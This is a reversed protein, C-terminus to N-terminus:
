IEMRTLPILDMESDPSAAAAPETVALVTLFAHALITWRRWSKWRRVLHEDLGCLHML